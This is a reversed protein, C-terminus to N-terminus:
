NMEYEYGWILPQGCVPCFNYAVDFAIGCQPCVYDGDDTYEAARPIKESLLADREEILEEVSGRVIMFPLSCLGLEAAQQEMRQIGDLLERETDKM